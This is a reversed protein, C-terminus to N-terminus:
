DNNNPTVIHGSNRGECHGLYSGCGNLQIDEFIRIMATSKEKPVIAYLLPGMSSMGAAIYEYSALLQLLEHVVPHQRDVERKKFGEAHVDMLARKLLQHDEELFAPVVGHYVAALVRLAEESPIPTNRQFFTVESGASYKYGKPLLLHIEWHQPFPLRVGIPPALAPQTSSSPTFPTNASEPHGLDVVVGGVFFTNVGIGSAGGRGSLKLLDTTTLPSGHLASCSTAIALLLATKSGFGVHPPPLSLVQICFKYSLKSSLRELLAWVDARDRAEIICEFNVENNVAVLARVEIPFADLAFGVGGYRRHTVGALDILTIHIRSFSRVLVQQATM